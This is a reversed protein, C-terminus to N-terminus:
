PQFLGSLNYFGVVLGRGGYNEMDELAVNVSKKLAELSPSEAVETLLQLEAGM